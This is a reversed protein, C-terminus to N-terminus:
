SLSISTFGLTKSIASPPVVVIVPLVASPDHWRERCDIEDVGDSADFFDSCNFGERTM